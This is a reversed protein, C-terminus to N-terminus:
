SRAGLVREMATAATRQLEPRVKAYIDSTIALGAHGLTASVVELPVGNNLMLTAATHRSAHFRRRGVGARVTLDHWWHLANRSHIRSGVSTTFVLGPDDWRTAAIQELRQAARHRRLAAVAFDPLSLQRVGADTKAKVVRLISADLDIDSWRLNLAEGQRLGTALVLVALAELRDGSAASLVRSAEDSDLADDVKTAAKRPAPVLAAVNRSIRGHREAHALAMRLIVRTYAVTRPSLAQRRLTAMMEEVDNTDLRALPIKGLCPILYRTVTERYSILTKPALDNNEIVNDAWHTLWAGTTYSMNVPRRGEAKTNELERLKAALGAKTKAKRTVRKRRGDVTGFDIRGVWLQEREDFKMTTTTPM